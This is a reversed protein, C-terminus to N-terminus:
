GNFIRLKSLMIPFMLKKRCWFTIRLPRRDITVSMNIPRGNKYQLYITDSAVM